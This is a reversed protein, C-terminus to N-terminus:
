IPAGLHRAVLLTADDERRATWQDFENMLMDRIVEVPREHVRELAAALREQGFQQGRADRAEVIGDTYFVLLDGPEVRCESDETHPAIDPIAATWTGPTPVWEVRREKARYLLIEEHAGAFTLVGSEDYSLLTLTIHEDQAMRERINEFLIRNVTSMIERPRANPTTRVVGSVVSQLMLMVLGAPLGHGAVDGIGIWCGRETELIDYYDGGVETAPRMVAALDLGRVSFRRPLIGTQIRTAIRLEKELREREAAERLSAEEVLRQTLRIRSVAAGLQAWLNEYVFGDHPGKAFLVYGPSDGSRALPGTIFQFPGSTPLLGEPLLRETRFRIGGPPAHLQRRAKVGAILRAWGPEADYACVYCTPIEYLPVEQALVSEVAAIDPATALANNTHVLKYSFDEYRVQRVSQTREAVSSAMLRAAHLLADARRWELSGSPLCARARGWFLTIFKQLGAADGRARVVSQLTERLEHVFCAGADAVDSAFAQWLSRKWDANRPGVIGLAHMADEAGALEARLLAVGLEERRPGAEDGAEPYAFCGCSERLVLESPLVKRTAPGGRVQELLARLVERGLERLPQRVTTLPPDSFRAGEVDDFGTVAVAEPIAIGRAGLEKLVGQATGDNACVIADPEVRREDYFLRVADVGSQVVYYGPAVLEPDFAIGHEALVERYIGYRLNAEDSAEPGRVFAMRRYGHVEILHAVLARMGPANDVSVRSCSESDVDPISCLPLPEFRKCYEALHSPGLDYGLPLLLVADVSAPGALDTTLRRKGGIDEPLLREVFNVVQVGEARALESLETLIPESYPNAVDDSLVGVRIRRASPPGSETPPASSNM